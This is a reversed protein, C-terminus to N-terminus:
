RVFAPAQSLPNERPRGYRRYFSANLKRANELHVAIPGNPYLYPCNGSGGNLYYDRLCQTGAVHERSKNRYVKFKWLDAFPFFCFVWLTVLLVKLERARAGLFNAWAMVAFPILFISLESYRSAKPANFVEAIYRARGLAILASCALLGGTLVLLAWDTATPATRKRVARVFPGVVPVLVVSLCIVGWVLSMSGFAFGSSVHNLFFNWFEPRWPPTMLSHDKPPLSLYWYLVSAAIPLVVIASRLFRSDIFRASAGSTGRTERAIWLRVLYIPLLVGMMGPGVSMSFVCFVGSLAGFATRTLTAPGFFLLEVTLFFSLLVFHFCTQFAFFHNEQPLTSLLFVVFWALTPLALKPTAMKAFRFLWVLIASYILFNLIIHFAVNWGNLHYLLWVLFKSTAILHENHRAVLWNWSLGAPLAGPTFMEWEDWWPVDVAYYGILAINVFFLLGLLFFPIKKM